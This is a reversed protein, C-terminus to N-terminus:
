YPSIIPVMKDLQWTNRTHAARSRGLYNPRTKERNQIFDIFIVHHDASHYDHACGTQLVRLNPEYLPRSRFGCYSVEKKNNRSDPIHVTGAETEM